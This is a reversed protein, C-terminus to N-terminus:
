SISSNSSQVKWGARGFSNNCVSMWPDGSTETQTEERARAEATEGAERDHTGGESDSAQQAQVGELEPGDGPDDGTEYM